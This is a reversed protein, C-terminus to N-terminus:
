LVVTSYQLIFVLSVVPWYQKSHIDFINKLYIPNCCLYIFLTDVEIEIPIAGRRAKNIYKYAQWPNLGHSLAFESATNFIGYLTKKDELYAYIVNMPINNLNIDKISVVNKFSSLPAEYYSIQLTSDCIILEIRLKPCYM